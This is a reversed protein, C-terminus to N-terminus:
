RPFTAPPPGHPPPGWRGMAARPTQPQVGPARLGSLMADRRERFQAVYGRALQEAQPLVAAGATQVALFAGTDVYNKVRGLAAILEPRAVAWALRWGTM